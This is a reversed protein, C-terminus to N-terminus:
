GLQWLLDTMLEPTQREKIMWREGKVALPVTSVVPLMDM